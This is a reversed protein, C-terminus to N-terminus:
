IKRMIKPSIPLRNRTSEGYEGECCKVGRLTYHLYHLLKEFPDVVGKEIHLHVIGALYSKM